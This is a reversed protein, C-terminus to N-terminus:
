PTHAAGYAQLLGPSEGSRQRPRRKCTGCQSAIADILAEKGTPVLFNKQRVPVHKDHVARALLGM